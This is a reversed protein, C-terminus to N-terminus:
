HHAAAARCHARLALEAAHDLSLFCLGARGDNTRVVRARAEVAVGSPLEFYVEVTKGVTLPGADSLGIGGVSVDELRARRWDSLGDVLVPAALPARSHTRRDTSPLTAHPRVVSEATTM